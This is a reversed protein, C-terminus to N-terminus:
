PRAEENAKLAASAVTAPANGSIHPRSRPRAAIKRLMEVAVALDDLMRIEAVRDSGILTALDVRIERLAQAVLALRQARSIM